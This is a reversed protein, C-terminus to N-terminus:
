VTDYAATLDIFTIASKERREFGAEIFTTLSLVQDCCSRGRRFGAQEIPVADEITNCIRNYLLRELLKYCCSLLTIPRYSEPLKNDKGPKQIAIIKTRKFEPPLVATNVIDSFFKKLWQRTKTGTHVIFEPYMGDFGAAKGTKTQNLVENIEDLSFARSYESTAFTNAKLQKLARKVTSTHTKESPARSNEIIRNAIKNPEITSKNLHQARSAEGLKRILGWAKRSSRSFDIHEVTSKLKNLRTSDLSKLLNDGTEPDESKLFEDYLKQSEETWGPIYEKRFGRPIHKKAISIVMGLFRHYNNAKPDIFRICTDLEKTFEPWNGKNCNWRPKPTFEVIPIQIGLEIIVPRHRSHPFSPLVTRSSPLPLMQSNTSVWCLDLNYGKRWRRSFFTTKDKLSHILHIDNEKAWELLKEGNEDNNEYGWKNHHSNFDGIYVTHQNDVAKIVDGPWKTLPPKYINKIIVGNVETSVISVNNKCSCDTMKANQISNHVYTATGYVNSYTAGIM